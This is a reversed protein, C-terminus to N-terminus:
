VPVALSVRIIAYLCAVAVAIAYFTNAIVAAIKLGKDHVYDEIITQMGLRMHLCVSLVALLLPIAVWPSGVLAVAQPYTRGWMAAIIAVLALMLPANAAGTLRQMWFHDAGHGTAGLGKVRARPTRISLRTDQRTDVKSM